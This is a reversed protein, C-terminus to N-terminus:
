SERCIDIAMEYLQEYEENTIRENYAAGELVENLEADSKSQKIWLVFDKFVANVYSSVM